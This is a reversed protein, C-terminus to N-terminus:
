LGGSAGGKNAATAAVSWSGGSAGGGNEESRPVVDALLVGGACDAGADNAFLVSVNFASKRLLAIAFRFVQVSTTNSAQPENLGIM